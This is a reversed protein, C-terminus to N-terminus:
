KFGLGHTSRRLQGVMSGEAIAISVGACRSFSGPIIGGSPTRGFKTLGGENTGNPMAMKVSHIVTVVISMAIRTYM